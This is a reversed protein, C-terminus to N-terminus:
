NPLAGLGAVLQLREAADLAAYPTAARRNTQDEIEDRRPGPALVRIEDATLGAAQWAAVHADFRHFRLPTLREALLAAATAGDPEYPPAMVGFAPGGTAQAAGVARDALGALSTVLAEHGASLEDVIAAMVRYLEAVCERGRGGLRFRGDDPSALLGGEVLAALSADVQSAPAYVFVSALQDRTVSRDPMTNRLMALTQVAPGALGFSELHGAREPVRRAIATRLRDLVPAILAAIREPALPDV